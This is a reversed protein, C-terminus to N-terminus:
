KSVAEPLRIGYKHILALLVGNTWGFGDQGPYEGGGAELKTDVVNYKEMLKGTRQYVANNLQVWRHAIDSALTKQGCRDLGWTTMWQMPAWGNPADWQEGTAHTTTVVGGAKLLKSCVAVAAKRALLSLYDPKGEFFCFPYMGTPSIANTHRGTTFDYDTYYNLRISWCYKDIAAQRQQAKRRYALSEAEKGQMSKAKAIVWELRYLLANLDVPIINTTQITALSKNDAFWRSSFDMGSEAGARLQRFMEQKDRKSRAATEVDERYSEQRPISFDDWYRNLLSGDKMRVVRRYAKGNKAKEAGDMWFRYEKEMAPLFEVYAANGRISALLEVMAAFFPPQSRGLYYTRNGNPIHGYTTILYAFNRVMNEIMETEGSEKLGLMTFYSDWYYIERFRGGPVIYAYPLPLLSSGKVASDPNRRLVGWLNRIHMTIDKEQQIYNIAPPAPPLTFNGEVFLKLSFRVNPNNKIALYDKVIEKPDRKPICDVFTKSDEFIRSLQVDRFLVGYIEDPAAPRQQGLAGHLSSVFVLLFLLRKMYPSNSSSIIQFNSFTLRRSKRLNAM